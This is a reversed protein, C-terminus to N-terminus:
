NMMTELLKVWDIIERRVELFDFLQAFTLREDIEGLRV